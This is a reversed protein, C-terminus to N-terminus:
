SAPALHRLLDPVSLMPLPHSALFTGATRIALMGRLAGISVGLMVPLMGTALYVANDTMLTHHSIDNVAFEVRIFYTLLPRMVAGRMATYRVGIRLAVSDDRHNDDFAVSIASEIPSAESHRMMEWRHITSLRPLETISRVSINFEEPKM